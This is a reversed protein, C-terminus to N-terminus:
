ALLRQVLHVAETLSRVVHTAEPVTQEHRMVLIRTAVGANQAAIMDFSTDGIMIWHQRDQRDPYRPFVRLKWLLENHKHWPDSVIVNRRPVIGFLGSPGFRCLKMKISHEASYEIRGGGVSRRFRTRADSSTLVALPIKQDRFFSTLYQADEYLTSEKRVGEWFYREAKVAAAYHRRPDHGLRRLYALIKAASSWQSEELTEGVCHIHEAFSKQMDILWVRDGRIMKQAVSELEVSVAVYDGGTIRTVVAGQALAGIEREFIVLTHDADAIVVCKKPNIRVVGEM